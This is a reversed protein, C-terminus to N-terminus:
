WFPLHILARYHSTYEHDDRYTKFKVTSKLPDNEQEKKPGFIKRTLKAPVIIYINAKIYYDIKRLGYLIQFAM